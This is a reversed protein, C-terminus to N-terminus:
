SNLWRFARFNNYYKNIENDNSNDEDDDSNHNDNDDNVNLFDNNQQYNIDGDYNDDHSQRLFIIYIM